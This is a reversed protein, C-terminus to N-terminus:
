RSIEMDTITIHCKAEVQTKGSGNVRIEKRREAERLGRKRAEL